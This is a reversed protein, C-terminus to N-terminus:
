ERKPDAILAQAHELIWPCWQDGNWARNWSPTDELDDTFRCCERPGAGDDCDILYETPGNPYRSQDPGLRYMTFTAPARTFEGLYGNISLKGDSRYPGDKGPAGTPDAM